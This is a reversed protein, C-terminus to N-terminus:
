DWVYREDYVIGHKELLIRYEDQFSHRRHHEEQNAIYRRAADVNSQSVSFAGYGNQWYFGRLGGDLTKAWASSGAKVEEMLTAIAVTRSLQCLIHVHDPMAGVILSPCRQNRFTGVLYGEM